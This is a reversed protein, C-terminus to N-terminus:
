RRRRTAALGGLGLMALSAPAPILTLSFESVSVSGGSGYDFSFGAYNMDAITIGVNATALSMGNIMYEVAFGSGDGTTDIFIDLAIPSGFDVGPDGGYANGSTRYGNFCEVDNRASDNRVLMWAIGEIENSFRDNFQVVGGPAQLADRGFGLAIWQSTANNVIAHLHYQANTMLGGTELLAGGDQTATVAGDDLWGASAQWTGGVDAAAGNLDAGFGDFNDYLITTNASAAMAAGAVLVLAVGIRDANKM